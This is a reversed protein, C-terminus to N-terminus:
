ISTSKGRITLDTSAEIAAKIDAATSKAAITTAIKALETFNVATDKALLALAAVGEPKYSGLNIGSKDDNNKKFGITDPKGTGTYSGIKIVKQQDADTLAADRRGDFIGFELIQNAKIKIKGATALRTWKNNTLAFSIPQSIRATLDGSVSRVVMSPRLDASFSKTLDVAAEQGYAVGGGGGGSSSSGGALLLLGLANNNGKDNKIGFIPGLVSCFSTFSLIMLLVLSIKFKNRM